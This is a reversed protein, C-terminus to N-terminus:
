ARRNIASAATNQAELWYKINIEPWWFDSVSSFFWFNFLNWSSHFCPDWLLEGRGTNANMNHLGLLFINQSNDTM